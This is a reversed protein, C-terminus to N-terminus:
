RVPAVHDHNCVLRVPALVVKDVPKRTMHAIRNRAGREDSECSCRNLLRIGACRSHKAVGNRDIVNLSGHFIPGSDRDIVFITQYLEVQVFGQLRM